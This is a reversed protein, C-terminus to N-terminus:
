LNEFYIANIEHLIDKSEIPHFKFIDNKKDDLLFCKLFIPSEMHQGM